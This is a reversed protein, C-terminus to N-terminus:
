LLIVMRYVNPENITYQPTAHPCNWKGRYACPAAPATGPLPGTMPAAMWRFGWCKWRACLSLATACLDDVHKHVALRYAPGPAASAPLLRDARGTSAHCPRCAPRSAGPRLGSSVTCFAPRLHEGGGRTQPPLAAAAAGVAAPGPATARPGRAQERGYGLDDRSANRRSCRAPPLLREPRASDPLAGGHILHLSGARGRRVPQGTAQGQGRRAGGAPALCGRSAGTERSRGRERPRGWTIGTEPRHLM